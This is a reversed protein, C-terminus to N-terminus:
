CIKGVVLPVIIGSKELFQRWKTEEFEDPYNFTRSGQMDFKFKGAGAALALIENRSLKQSNPGERLIFGKSCRVPKDRSEEVSIILLDKREYKATHLSILIRSDCNNAIDQVRSRVSNDLICGIVKGNDAVGIVIKGGSSNAFAVMERDLGQGIDKKFEVFYGEGQEILERIESKKM